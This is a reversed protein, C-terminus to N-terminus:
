VSSIIMKIKEIFKFLKSKEWIYKDSCFPKKLFIEIFLFFLIISSYLMFFIVSFVTFWEGGTIDKFPNIQTQNFSISKNIEDLKLTFSNLNPSAQSLLYFVLFIVLFFLTLRIVKQFILNKKKQFIVLYFRLRLIFTIGLFAMTIGLFIMFTEEFKIYISIFLTAIFIIFIFFSIAVTLPFLKEKHIIKFTNVAISLFIFLIGFLITGLLFNGTPIDSFAGQLLSFLTILAGLIIYTNKLPLVYKNILEEM